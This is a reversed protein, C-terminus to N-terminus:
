EGETALFQQLAKNYADNLEAKELSIPFRPASTGRSLSSVEVVSQAWQGARPGKRLKGELAFMSATLCTVPIDPVPEPEPMCTQGSVFNHLRVPSGIVALANDFAEPTILTQDTATATTM